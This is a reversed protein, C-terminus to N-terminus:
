KLDKEFSKKSFFYGLDFSFLLFFISFDSYIISLIIATIELLPRMKLAKILLSKKKINDAWDNVKEEIVCILSSIFIIGWSNFSPMLIIFAAFFSILGAKHFKSDMKSSLVIGIMIGFFFEPLFIIKLLYAIIAGYLISIFYSLSDKIKLGHESACDATKSLFGSAFALFYQIMINAFLYDMSKFIM